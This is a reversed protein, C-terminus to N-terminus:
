TELMFTKSIIECLLPLNANPMTSGKRKPDIPTPKGFISVYVLNKEKQTKDGKINDQECQEIMHSNEVWTNTVAINKSDLYMAIYPYMRIHDM